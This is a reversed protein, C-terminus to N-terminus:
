PRAAPEALRGLADQIELLPRVTDLKGLAAAREGLAGIELSLGALKAVLEKHVKELSRGDDVPIGLVANVQAIVRRAQELRQQSRHRNDDGPHKELNVELSAAFRLCFSKLSVAQSRTARALFVKPRHTRDEHVRRIEDNLFPEMVARVGAQEEDSSGRTMAGHPRMRRAKGADSGVFQVALDRDITIELMINVPEPPLVTEEGRREPNQDSRPALNPSVTDVAEREDPM